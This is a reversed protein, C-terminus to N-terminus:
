IRSNFSEWPWGFCTISSVWSYRGATYPIFCKELWRFTIENTTWGIGSLEIRWDGPLKRQAFWGETHVKGKFIICPPVLYGSSGICEIATVWERQGPQLIRPKGQLDSRTVVKSVSILGM